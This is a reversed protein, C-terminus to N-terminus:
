KRRRTSKPNARHEEHMSYVKTYIDNKSILFFLISNVVEQMWLSFLEVLGFVRKQQRRGIKKADYVKDSVHYIKFGKKIM